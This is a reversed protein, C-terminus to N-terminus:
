GGGQARYFEKQVVVGGETRVKYPYPRTDVKLGRAKVMRMVPKEADSAMRLDGWDPTYLDIVM